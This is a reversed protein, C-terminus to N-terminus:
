LDSTIMDKLLNMAGGSQNILKNLSIAIILIFPEVAYRFATAQEESVFINERDSHINLIFNIPNDLFDDSDCPSFSIPFSIFSEIDKGKGKTFYNNMRKKLTKPMNQPLEKFFDQKRKFLEPTSRLLARPAGPLLSDHDHIEEIKCFPIPLILNELSDDKNPTGCNANSFSLETDLILISSYNLLNEHESITFINLFKEARNETISLFFETFEKDINKLETHYMINSAYNIKKEDTKNNYNIALGTIYGLTTRIIEQYAAKDSNGKYSLLDILKYTKSTQEGLGKLWDKPPIHFVREKLEETQSSLRESFRRLEITQLNLTQSQSVLEDAKHKFTNITTEQKTAMNKSYIFLITAVISFSIWFIWGGNHDFFQGVGPPTELIKEEVLMSETSHIFLSIQSRVESSFLSALMGILITLIAGLWGFFGKFAKEHPRYDVIENM